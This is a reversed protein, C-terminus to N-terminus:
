SSKRAGNQEFSRMMIGDLIRGAAARVKRETDEPMPPLQYSAVLDTL